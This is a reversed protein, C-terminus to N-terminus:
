WNECEGSLAGDMAFYFSALGFLGGLGGTALVFTGYAAAGLGILIKTSTKTCDGGNVKVMQNLELTKM